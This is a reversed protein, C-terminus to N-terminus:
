FYFMDPLSFSIEYFDFRLRKEKKKREKTVGLLVLFEFIKV